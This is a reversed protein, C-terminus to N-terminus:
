ARRRRIFGAVAGACFLMWAAPEPVASIVLRVSHGDTSGVFGTFDYVGPVFSPTDIPGTFVQTGFVSMESVFPAPQSIAMGGSIAPTYFSVDRLGAIGAFTGSVGRVAFAGAPDLVEVVPSADIQFRADYAGSVTFDYTQASAATTCALAAVAACRRLLPNPHM